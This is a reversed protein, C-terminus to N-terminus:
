RANAYKFPSEAFAMYIYTQGSTNRLGSNVRWKLGNSLFDCSVGDFEANALNPRLVNEVVNTTDRTNDHIGWDDADTTRKWLIFAPRFGLYIFTGNASSNGTYSGFKSYGEVDAFVYAVYTNSGANVDVSTGISFVSSTPSTDNFAVAEDVKASTEDLRLRHTNGMSEHYTYWNGTNSRRKVIYMQPVSSLGHGVTANAGSGTYTVISFGADTNAQVTSTISGDTNSSTTGGNAKWNWSAYADTSQNVYNANTSGGRLTYGDDGFTGLYGYESNLGVEAGTTDSSLHRGTGRTSDYLTHSTSGSTRNKLWVWDPKFGVGTVNQTGNAGINDSTYLVTNFYDDAQTASNPGITVEPLNATCLAKAGTPVAMSFNGFGNADTNTAATENGAFTSDQGANFIVNITVSGSGDGGMPLYDFGNDCNINGVATGGRYVAMNPPSADSDFLIGYVEPYTPSGDLAVANGGNHIIEDGYIVFNTEGYYYDTTNAGTGTATVSQYAGAGGVGNTKAVGMGGADASVRFEWFWKGTGLKIPITTASFSRGGSSTACFLNGESLTNATVARFNPNFTAFNNEPSDPMACDSAVIGSSTFHNTNGSTDAGITSTSATGVGVQDFQLRFGNTGYSGSYAKPIWVGNKFEGFESIVSSSDSVAVGDLYYMDAFYGDFYTASWPNGSAEGVGIKNVGNLGFRTSSDESPYSATSFSTVKNGNIYIKVRDAATSQTTDIVVICHYWASFDRLLQTTIVEWTVSNNDEQSVNIKDAELTIRASSQSGGGGSGGFCFIEGINSSGISSQGRKMWWAFTSKTRTGDSVSKYLYSSSPQNFRVSQTAVGNYFGTPQEGAGNAILSM